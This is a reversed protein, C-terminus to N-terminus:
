DGAPDGDADAPVRPEPGAVTWASPAECVLLPGRPGRVLRGRVTLYNQRFEETRGPLDLTRFAQRSAAPISARFARDRSGSRFLVTRSGDDEDFFRDISGFIEVERQPAGACWAVARELAEPDDAAVHRQADQAQRERFADM